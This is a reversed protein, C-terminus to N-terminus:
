IPYDAVIDPLFRQSAFWSAAAPNLSNLLRASVRHITILRTPELFPELHSARNRAFCLQNVWNYVVNRPLHLQASNSRDKFCAGLSDNWMRIRDNKPSSAIPSPLLYRWSGFTLGAVLDDHTPNRKTSTGDLGRLSDEARAQMTKQGPPNIIDKLPSAPNQLWDPGYYGNGSSFQQNSNWQRLAEDLSNRLQVEVMGTSSIVAASARINWQYLSLARGLDNSAFHLYTQLRPQSIHASLAQRTSNKM